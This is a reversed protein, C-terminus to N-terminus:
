QTSTVHAFDHVFDDLMIAAEGVADTRGQGFGKAAV